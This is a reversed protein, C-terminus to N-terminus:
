DCSIYDVPRENKANEKGCSVAPVHGHSADEHVHDDDLFALEEFHHSDSYLKCVAQLELFKGFDDLDAALSKKSTSATGSTKVEELTVASSPRSSGSTSGETTTFDTKCSTTSGGGSTSFDAADTVSTLSDNVVAETHQSSSSPFECLKLRAAAVKIFAEAFSGKASNAASAGGVVQVSEEDVGRERLTQSTKQRAKAKGVEMWGKGGPSKELFRGPPTQNFIVEVISQSLLAKHDVPCSRYREKNADVLKRFVINGPHKNVFGGRGCLVDHPHLDCVAVCQTAVEKPLIRHEETNSKRQKKTEPQLGDPLYEDDDSTTNNNTRKSSISPGVQHSLTM